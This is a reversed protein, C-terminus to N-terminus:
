VEVAASEGTEDILYSNHRETAAFGTAAASTEQGTSRLRGAVRQAVADVEVHVARVAASTAPLGGSVAPVGRGGTVAAACQECGAALSALGASDVNIVGV